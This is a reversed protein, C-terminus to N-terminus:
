QPGFNYPGLIAIINGTTTDIIVANVRANPNSSLVIARVAFYENSSIIDISAAQGSALTVPASTSQSALTHKCVTNSCGETVYAAQRFQVEFGDGNVDGAAVTLRLIRNPGLPVVGTDGVPKLRQLGQATSAFSALSMLMSATLVVLLTMKRKM